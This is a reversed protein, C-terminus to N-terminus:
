FDVNLGVNVAFNRDTRHTLKWICDVRLLRFINAVGVGVECYPTELSTLGDMLLFPANTRNQESLTGWAGRVTVVERLNLNKILPINGLVLGNFNHEYFATLWRDSAFEYYNMLSFASKDLLSIVPSGFLQSQNGAHLKLLPYPVSGLIAGANMHFNGFGLLGAPTRWDMTLEGRYFSCDDATIGKIGALLDVTIIPYRTFIYSKEFVGRNVREEWSFRGTWHIQNASFSEALTGDPRFLPVQDNGYIRLHQLMLTSNFNPSFEYAHEVQARFMMSSKDFGGPALLSNIINRQSYVGSGNGLSEYNKIVSATIKNTRVQNNGLMFETSADWKFKEDGFGYAAMARFRVKSSFEKTTRFGAQVRVGEMDSFSLTREWPGYGIGWDKNELFGTVFMSSLASIWKFSGTEKFREAATFISEEHENLPATRAQAWYESDKESDADVGIKDGGALKEMEPFPGFRVDTYTLHRIGQVSAVAFEDNLQVSADFDTREEKFFWTGDERRVNESEVALLSIWNINSSPALRVHVSRIAFDEADVEMRGEWAPSTILKRPHFLISYTKRGDFSLSDTLDYHYFLHGISSAPSPVSLNFVPIVDRYFNMRLSSTGTFQRLVNQQELGSIRSAEFIEKDVAPELAHYRRIVSESMLVPVNGTFVSDAVEPVLKNRKRHLARGVFNDARAVALETKGYVRAEWAAYAEPDHRNRNRDLEYLISQVYRNNRSVGEEQIGTHYLTFDLVSDTGTAVEQTQPAYGTTEVTLHHVDIGEALITYCGTTDTSVGIYTGEFYVLAYPVGEGSSADTVKGRVKTTQASLLLPLLLLLCVSIFRVKPMFKCFYAKKKL